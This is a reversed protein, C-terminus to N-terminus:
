DELSEIMADIEDKLAELNERTVIKPISTDGFLESIAEVARDYLEDSRAM